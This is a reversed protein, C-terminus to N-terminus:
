SLRILRSRMLKDSLVNSSKFIVSNKSINSLELDASKSISNSFQFAAFIEFNSTKSIAYEMFLLVTLNLNKGYTIYYKSAGEEESRAPKEIKILPIRREYLKEIFQNTKSKPKLVLFNKFKRFKEQIGLRDNDYLEGIKAAMVEDLIQHRHLGFIEISGSCIKFDYKDSKFFNSLLSGYSEYIAEESFGYLTSYYYYRLFNLGNEFKLSEFLWNISQKSFIKIQRFNNLYLDSKRILNRESEDRKFRSENNMRFNSDTTLM